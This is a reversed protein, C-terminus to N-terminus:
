MSTVCLIIMGIVFGIVILLGLFHVPDHFPNFANGKRIKIMPRGCKPCSEAASSVTNGCDPCKILAM